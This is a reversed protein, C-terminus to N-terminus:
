ASPPQQLLLADIEAILVSPDKQLDKEELSFQWFKPLIDGLVLVVILKGNETRLSHASRNNPWKVLLAQLLQLAPSLDQSM